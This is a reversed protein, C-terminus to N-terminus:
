GRYILICSMNRASYLENQDDGVVILANLSANAACRPDALPEICGGCTSRCLPGARHAGCYRAPANWSTTTLRLIVQRDRHGRVRDGEIFLSWDELKGNLMPSHSVGIGLVIKAM